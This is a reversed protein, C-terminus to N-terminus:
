PAGGEPLWLRMTTGAPARNEAWLKGGHGEVIQLALSLGLGTGQGVPKTTYFPDFIRPMVDPPIGPGEDEVSIEVGPRGDRERRVVELRVVCGRESADIANSVLNLLASEIETRSVEVPPLEPAVKTELTVDNGRAKTWSLEVIDHVLVEVSTEVRNGSSKRTFDLMTRVLDACRRAQRGIAEMPLRMPDNQPLRRLINQAQALVVAVPNNIEHSLGAVLTGIAAMKGTQLLQEQTDRLRRLNADLEENTARLEATREKVRQELTLSLAHLQAFADAKELSAGTLAVIYEALHQEDDGFLAGVLSHTVYLCMSSRGGVVIPTCMASRLNALAGSDPPGETQTESWVVTRQQEFARLALTRSVPAEDSAGARCLTRLEYGSLRLVSASQGRLLRAGATCAANYIDDPSIASAIRRGSDVVTAFRDALSLTAPTQEGHDLSHDGRALVFDGGLEHLMARARAIEMDAGALGRLRRLEGRVFLSQAYEFRTGLADAEALSRDVVREARVLAGRRALLLAKERLAMPLNGRYRRAIRTGRRIAREAARLRHPRPVVVTDDVREAALRLAYGRWLPLYSVYESRLKAARAVREATAFSEVARRVDGERVWRLADAQLVSERTQPDNRSSVLATEVLDTPAVGGTAKAWAELILGTAYADGVEVGARYVRRCEEVAEKLAGMRYLCFAIHVGANNAEWRDGIRRLVPSAERFRDLASPYAGAAYLLMGHFSLSQAEGAVDGLARRIALGREAYASGRRFFVRPLGTMGLAHESYAQGLERSPPHSEALNLESLHAFFTAVQGRTFWYAYALRSFLRAALLDGDRREPGRRALFFRPLMTHLVQLATQFFTALAIAFSGSPLRRGLIALAREIAAAAEDHRGRKFALEGFKGEIRAQALPSAAFAMARGLELHADDYRGRLLLVDALAEAVMGHREPTEGDLGREAIRYQREAVEFAHRARARSAAELAYPLASAPDGAEDFHYALDFALDMQSPWSGDASAALRRAALRHLKKREEPSLREILRTRIRDHAFSFRDGHPDVWVLHRRRALLLDNMADGIPRGILDAALAVDFTKGLIACASLLQLVSDPLRELRRALSSAGRVSAQATAMANPDVDWRTESDVLAGGEVLGELAAIAVFPNGQSLREVLEIATEPLEGAMSEALRRVEDHALPPLELRLSPTLQRLAHGVDVEDSRYGLAILEYAGSTGSVHARQWAAIVALSVEDACQCDDFIVLAMRQDTGLADLLATLAPVIRAEGFAENGVVLQEGPALVPALVPLAICVAARHDGLASRLQTGLGADEQVRALIGQAVGDFLQLPRQVGLSTAQGRLVWFGRQAAHVALEALLRTKGAGSEGEVFVLRADGRKGRDLEADLARVESERGVFAPETLTRRRDRAGIVLAPDRQGSDLARTIAEIDVLVAAASQYRDRPDKRVLRQIVADLARPVALGLSRLEPPAVTLHQRLVEGATKARFPVRGALCEYLVIGASYLDAREGVDRHILGAQEPSIYAITGAPEDLAWPELRATRALGFDILTVTSRADEGLVINAPKVDRHIVGREHLEHLARMLGRAVHLTDRTGLRGRRLREALSEGPVWPAVLFFDGSEQGVGIPPALCSIRGSLERLVEAEHELRLRTSPSVASSSTKKIVIPEGHDLDIGRFTEIGGASKLLSTARYHGALTQEM